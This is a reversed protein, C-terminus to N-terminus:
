NFPGKTGDEPCLEVLCMATTGAVDVYHLCHPKGDACIRCTPSEPLGCENPCLQVCQYSTPGGTGGDQLPSGCVCGTLCGASGSPVGGLGCTGGPQCILGQGCGPDSYPPAVTCYTTCALATQRCACTVFCLQADRQYTYELSAGLICPAGQAWKPDEIAGGEPKSPSCGIQTSSVEGNSCSCTNCGDSCTWSTGNAHSSGDIACSTATPPDDGADARTDSSPTSGVVRGGCASVVLSLAVPGFRQVFARRGENDM